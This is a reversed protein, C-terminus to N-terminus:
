SLLVEEVQFHIDIPKLSDEFSITGRDHNLRDKPAESLSVVDADLSEVTFLFRDHNLLM